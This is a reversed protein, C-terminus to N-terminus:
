NVTLYYTNFVRGTQDFGFLIIPVRGAVAVARTGVFYYWDDPELEFRACLDSQGCVEAHGLRQEVETRRMDRFSNAEAVEKVLDNNAQLQDSSEVSRGMAEKLRSVYEDSSGAGSRAGCASGATAVLVVVVLLLSRSTM